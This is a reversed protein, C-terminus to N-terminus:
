PYIKVWKMYWRRFIGGDVLKQVMNQYLLYISQYEEETVGRRSFRAKRLVSFAQEWGTGPLKEQLVLLYTEDDMGVGRKEGLLSLVRGLEKGIECVAKTRNEQTIRQKRQNLVWRRRLCVLLCLCLVALITLGMNRLQRRYRHFFGTEDGDQKTVEKPKETTVQGQQQQMDQAQEKKEDPHLREYERDAKELAQSLGQGEEMNDLLERYQPPTTEIPCFGMNEYFVETWAHAREDTVVATWTGDENKTFDSPLVLYGSAYRAPIDYMRFLLTAASAFHACYGKHQEFLFYEVGDKGEPIDELDLSYRNNEWLPDLILRNISYSKETVEGTFFGMEEDTLVELMQSYEWADGGLADLKASIEEYIEWYSKKEEKQKKVYARFQELGEEPLKTYTREVYNKYSNWVILKQMMDADLSFGDLYILDSFNLEDENLNLFSEWEYRSSNTPPCIADARLKLGEPIASFYPLLTYQRLKQKMQISVHKKRGIPAYAFLGSQAIEYPFQQILTGYTEEDGGRPQAWDSFEQRSIRQWTGNEYTGGVFGRLYVPNSIPYDVTIQLVEKGTYEPAENDLTYKRQEGYTFLPSDLVKEAVDIMRDELAIQKRYWDENLPRTKTWIMENSIFLAPIAISVAMLVGVLVNGRVRVDLNETILGAFVFLIGMSSIRIGLSLGATIILVPLVAGALFHYKRNRSALLFLGELFGLTVVLLLVILFAYDEKDELYFLLYETRYEANILELARNSFQKGGVLFVEYYRACVFTLTGAFLLIGSLAWWKGLGTIEVYVALLAAALLRTQWSVPIGFTSELCLSMGYVIMCLCFGGQLKRLWERTKNGTRKDM